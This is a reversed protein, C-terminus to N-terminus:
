KFGLLFVTSEPPLASSEGQIVTAVPYRNAATTLAKLQKDPM